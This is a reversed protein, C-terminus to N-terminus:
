SAASAACWSRRRQGPVARRAPAVRARADAGQRRPEGALHRLPRDRAAGQAAAAPDLAPERQLHGLHVPRHLPARRHGRGRADFTKVGVYDLYTARHVTSVSNAKTVVLLAAERAKRRVEGRLETPKPRPRGAGTRLLGLGSGAVPVLRDVTAGRELRYERYGLFTFHNDALWDLFASAEVAERAVSAPCRPVDRAAATERALEVMRPWDGVALRVDELTSEIRERVHELRAADTSRDVEVHQWSEMAGGATTARRRSCAGPATAVCAHVGPAGDHPDVTRLREAGDRAFRGPVAHRRHGGRGRHAAVALRRQEVTPNFVRVLARGPKRTAGFRLHGAAAAALSAPDGDRLDSEDVGRYYAQVFPALPLTAGRSRSKAAIAAILHQRAAPITGPM